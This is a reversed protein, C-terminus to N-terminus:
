NILISQLKKHAVELSEYSANKGNIWVRENFELIHPSTYHGTKYGKHFLASALFRGTTGKGNTGLLHIINSATFHSRVKEYIRPMRTYDIETYYLPKDRLFSELTM